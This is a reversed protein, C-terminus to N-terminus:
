FKEVSDENSSSLALDYWSKLSSEIVIRIKKKDRVKLAELINEHDSLVKDGYHENSIQLSNHFLEMITKGILILYQNHTSEYILQHFEFDEDITSKGIEQSKKTKEINLELNHIDEQTVTDTAAISAAIEITKRFELLEKQTGDNLLVFQFLLPNM